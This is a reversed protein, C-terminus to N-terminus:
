RSWKGNNKKYPEYVILANMCNKVKSMNRQQFLRLRLKCSIQIKQKAEGESIIVNNHGDNFLIGSFVDERVPSSFFKGHENYGANLQHAWLGVVLNLVAAQPSQWIAVSTDGCPKAM